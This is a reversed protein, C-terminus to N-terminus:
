GIRRPPNALRDCTGYRVLGPGDSDRDMHDFRDVLQNPGGTIQDLFYTTLGSRFLDGGLHLDWDVLNSLNEFDGFFRDGQFSRNTLLLVAVQTIKDLVLPNHCWGIRHDIEVKLFLRFFDQRSQSGAFLLHQSHTKADALPGIMRQFLDSLFEGDGSFPDPLNLGLGQAFQPM